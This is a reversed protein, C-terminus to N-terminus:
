QKRRRPVLKAKSVPQYSKLRADGTFIEVEFGASAYYEAVEKITADGIAIGKAAFLKREDIDM